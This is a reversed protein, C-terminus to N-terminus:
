CASMDKDVRPFKNQFDCAATCTNQNAGREMFASTTNCSQIPPSFVQRSHEPVRASARVCLVRVRPHPSVIPGQEKKLTIYTMAPPACDTEVHTPPSSTVIRQSNLLTM